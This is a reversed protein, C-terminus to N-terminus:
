MAQSSNLQCQSPTKSTCFSAKPYTNELMKNEYFSLFKTLSIFMSYILLSYSVMTHTLQFFSCVVLLYTTNNFMNKIFFFISFSVLFAM